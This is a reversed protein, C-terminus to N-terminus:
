ADLDVWEAVRGREPDRGIVNKQMLIHRRELSKLAM